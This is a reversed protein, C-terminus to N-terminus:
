ASFSIEFEFGSKQKIEITANIQNSLLHILEMGLSNEMKEKFNEPPGIGNDKVTLKYRNEINKFSVWINGVGNPFAHKYANTVLENIILGLPISTDFDLQIPDLDTHIEIIHNPQTYSIQIELILQKIYDDMQMYDMKEKKYLFEHILAMSQIRNRAESFYVEVRKDNIKEAQLKLLSMIIQMNNKVRHHVEKILLEQEKLANTLMSSKLLIEENKEFLVMERKSSRKFLFYGIILLFLMFFIIIYMVIRQQNRKEEMVLKAAIEKDQADIKEQLKVTQYAIRQNLMQLEKENLAISDQLNNFQQYVEVAEKFRGNLSLLNARLKLNRLLELPVDIEKLIINASDLYAECERYAKSEFYCIALENYSICANQFDQYQISTKLDKKLLPIAEAFQNKAMLAQGKNGEILGEFFLHFMNKRDTLLYRNIIKQAKEFYFIASDPENAKNFFVGLNNYYNIEAYKDNNRKASQQYEEKLYNISEHTLGMRMYIISLPLGQDKELLIPNRKIMKDILLQMEFAKSYNLTNGFCNKLNAIARMSDVQTVFKKQCLINLLIPIAKQYKKQHASYLGELFLLEYKVRQNDISLKNNALSDFQITNKKIFENIDFDESKYLWNIKEEKTKFSYFKNLLLSDNDALATFACSQYL